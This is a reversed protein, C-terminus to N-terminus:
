QRMHARHATPHISLVEEVQEPIRLHRHEDVGADGTLVLGRPESVASVQRIQTLPMVDAIHVERIQSGRTRQPLLKVVREPALAGAGLLARPGPGLEELLVQAQEDRPLHECRVCRDPVHEVTLVLANCEHAGTLMVLVTVPPHQDPHERVEDFSEGNFM